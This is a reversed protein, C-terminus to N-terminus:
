PALEGSYVILPLYFRYPAEPLPEVRVAAQFTDSDVANSVVLSVTYTGTASYLHSPAWEGSGQGDGFTWTWTSAGTSTNTLVLAEGLYVPSNSEFHAQPGEAAVLEFDLETTATVEVGAATQSLFGSATATVDYIGVTLTLSYAGQPDTWAVGGGGGAQPEASIQVGALPGGGAAEIV